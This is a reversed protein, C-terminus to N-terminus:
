CGLLSSESFDDSIYVPVTKDPWRAEPSRLGNRRVEPHFLFDMQDKTLIMDDMMYEIEDANSTSLQEDFEPLADDQLDRNGEDNHYGRSIELHLRDSRIDGKGKNLDFEAKLAVDEQMMEGVVFQKHHM